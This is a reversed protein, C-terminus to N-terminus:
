YIHLLRALAARTAPRSRADALHVEDVGLQKGISELDPESDNVDNVVVLHPLHAERVAHLCVRAEEVRDPHVMVVVGAAGRAVDVWLADFAQPEPAALLHLRATPSLQVCGLELSETHLRDLDPRYQGMSLPATTCAAGIFTSSGSRVPGTVVIKVSVLGPASVPRVSEDAALHKAVRRLFLSGSRLPSITVLGHSALEVLVLATVARPLQLRSSIELATMTEESDRLFRAVALSEEHLAGAEEADCWPLRSRVLTHDAFQASLRRPLTRDPALTSM